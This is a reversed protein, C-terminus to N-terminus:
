TDAPRARPWMVLTLAILVLWAPVGDALAKSGLWPPGPAWHMLPSFGYAVWVVGTHAGVATWLTGTRLWAATLALSFLTLGLFFPGFQAPDVLRAFGEGVAQLGRWPDRAVDRVHFAPRFAHLAGFVLAPILAAAPLSLRRALRRVMWGRFLWEELLAALMAGPLFRAIRLAVSGSASDHRWSWLGAAQDFAVIGATLLAAAVFAKVPAAWSASPGRLGYSALDGDRWPRFGALVAVALVVTLLRRFGRLYENDDLLGVAVALDFAPGALVMSAVVGIVLLVLFRPWPRQWIPQPSHSRTSVPRAGDRRDAPM